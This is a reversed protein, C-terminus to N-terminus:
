IGLVNLSIMLCFTGIVDMSSMLLPIVINDPDLGLRWSMHTLTYSILLSILTITIGTIILLYFLNSFGPSSIGFFYSIIHLIIVLIPLIGISISFYPLFGKFVKFNPLFRLKISEIGTYLSSSMRAAFIGGLNGGFARIVPVAMLIVVFAVMKQINYELILGSMMSIITCIILVPLSQIVIDKLNKKNLGYSLSLISALILFIPLITYIINSNEKIFYCFISVFFIIPITIFDGFATILPTTINDPDWGREFSKTTIYIMYHLIVTSTLIGTIMAIIILDWIPIIAFKFLKGILWGVLGLILSINLAQVISIVINEKILPDKYMNKFKVVNIEGTHMKTSIRSGMSSFINTEAAMTAPIITMLGTLSLLLNTIGGLFIGAFLDAMIAIILVFFSEKIIRSSKKIDDKIATAVRVNQLIANALLIKKSHM